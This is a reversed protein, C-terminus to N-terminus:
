PIHIALCAGPLTHQNKLEIYGKVEDRQHAAAITQALYLGLGTKLSDNLSSVAFSSDATHPSMPTSLLEEPFGPGDDQIYITLSRGDKKDQDWDASLQITTLHNDKLQVANYIATDIINQILVSDFFGFLEEDCQWTLKINHALQTLHHRAEIEEFIDEIIHQDINPFISCQNLKFSNLLEGFRHSISQVEQRISHISSNTPPITNHDSSIATQTTAQDTSQLLAEIHIMLTSFQNKLEHVSSALLPSIDPSSQVHQQLNQNMPM